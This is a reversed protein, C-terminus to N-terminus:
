IILMADGYSYFRFEEDVAKKYADMVFDRGAFASVLMLLTSKPLHFNTVLADVVNFDYGPYIFLDTFGKSPVKNEKSAFVHELTRVVSTGVAIIRSGAKKAEMVADSVEPEIEYQEPHMVHDKISESRVPRFTGWGIHLTITLVSVGIEKIGAILDDTFHLGATPAAVAGLHEAYVTQYRERDLPKLCLSEEPRKIYPPLPISGINNFADWVNGDCNLRINWAGDDNKEELCISLGDDFFLEEGRSPERSSRVLAKWLLGNNVTTADGNNQPNLLFVEVKGGTKKRGILRAPFVKTDNLVLLDGARFYDTIDFFRKEGIGKNGRNLVMLRSHDRRDAPLQAILREPLSYEFDGIQM